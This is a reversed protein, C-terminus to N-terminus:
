KEMTNMRFHVCCALGFNSNSKGLESEDGIGNKLEIVMVCSARGSKLENAKTSNYFLKKIILKISYCIKQKTKYCVVM